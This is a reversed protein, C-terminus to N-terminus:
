IDWPFGYIYIYLGYIPPKLGENKMPKQPGFTDDIWFSGLCFVGDSFEAMESRSIFTLVDINTRNTKRIDFIDYM